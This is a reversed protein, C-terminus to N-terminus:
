DNPADFFEVVDASWDDNPDGRAAALLHALFEALTKRTAGTPGDTHDDILRQEGDDACLVSVFDGNVVDFVLLRMPHEITARSSKPIRAVRRVPKSALDDDLDRWRRLEDHAMMQVSPEEKGPAYWCFGDCWRYLARLEASLNVDLEEEIGDLEDDHAPPELQLADPHDDAFRALEVLVPRRACGRM